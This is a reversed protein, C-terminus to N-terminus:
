ARAAGLLASCLPSQHTNWVEIPLLLSMIAWPWVSLPFRLLRPEPYTFWNEVSGTEDEVFATPTRRVATKSAGRFVTETTVAPHVFKVAVTAAAGALM